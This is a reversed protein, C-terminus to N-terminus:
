QIKIQVEGFSHHYSGANWDPKPNEKRYQDGILVAEEIGAM